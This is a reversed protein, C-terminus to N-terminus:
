LRFISLRRGGYKDHTAELILLQAFNEEITIGNNTVSYLAKANGNLFSQGRPIPNGVLNRLARTVKNIDDLLIGHIGVSRASLVNESKDDLFIANRPNTKTEIIIDFM